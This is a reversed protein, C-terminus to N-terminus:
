EPERDFTAVQRDGHWLEVDQGDVFQRAYKKAAEDDPCVFGIASSVHGDEDLIYARYDAMQPIGGFIDLVSFRKKDTRNGVEFSSEGNPGQVGPIGRGGFNVGV